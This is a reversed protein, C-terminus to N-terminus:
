FYNDFINRTDTNREGLLNSVALLTVKGFKRGLPSDGDYVVLGDYGCNKELPFVNMDDLQLKLKTGEHGKVLWKCYM